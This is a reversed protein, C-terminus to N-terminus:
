GRGPTSRRTRTPLSSLSPTWSQLWCPRSRAGTRPSAAASRRPEIVPWVAPGAAAAATAARPLGSSRRCRPRVKARTTPSRPSSTPASPSSPPRSGCCASAAPSGMSRRTPTRPPRWGTWPSARPPLQTSPHTTPLPSAIEIRQTGAARAWENLPGAFRADPSARRPVANLFSCMMTFIAAPGQPARAARRGGTGACVALLLCAAEFFVPEMCLACVYMCPPCRAHRRM